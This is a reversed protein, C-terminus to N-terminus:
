RTARVSDDDITHGGQEISGVLADVDQCVTQFRLIATRLEALHAAEEPQGASAQAQQASASLVNTAATIVTSKSERGVTVIRNATAVDFDYGGEGLTAQNAIGCVTATAEDLGSITVAPAATAAPEVPQGTSACGSIALLTSTLVAATTKGRM